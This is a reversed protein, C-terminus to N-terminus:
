RSYKWVHDPERRELETLLSYTGDPGLAMEVMACNGPNALVEFEEVTYHFWRMLFLRLTMGHTVILVNPPFDPKEFDRYLTNLFDSVRDFVDAASEGDPIRFYFAGYEDRLRTVEACAKLDRLHGWEQERVRPEELHRLQGEPFSERIEAFTDRTRYLPSLYVQAPEEGFMAKLRVGAARAQARGLGTLRLAYDPKNGYVSDDINGESEGHRILIIRKPKM